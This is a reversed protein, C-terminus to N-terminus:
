NLSFSSLLNIENGKYTYQFLTNDGVMLLVEELPIVDYTNIDQFHDTLELNPTNKTDYIKLGATGDCVFLWDDKVGLGYPNEMDYSKMLQPNSKDAVDIVDLQSWEQGCANGGRITVYAIDDKVVVPDCGLIHSFMSKFQPAAPDELSYIYMGTSSGLYLHNEKYFITEIDRGVWESKILEPNRLGAINFVSLQNEDVIYLYDENINFRALSGGTGSGGASNADSNSFFADGWVAENAMEIKRTEMLYGMVVDTESNFNDSDVFTANAPIRSNHNPFVNKMRGEEKINNMDSLDFVVLDMASNAFLMNDKVAIDTNLPIELFKIKVPNRHDTNDIIHVGKQDDNIFVYDGYTYIKGAETIARPESIKVMARFEEIPKVIPVAVNYFEGGADDKECSTFLAMLALLLLTIICYFFRM